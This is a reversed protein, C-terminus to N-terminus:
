WEEFEEEDYDKPSGAIEEIEKQEEDSVYPLIEMFAKLLVEKLKEEIVKEFEERSIQIIEM